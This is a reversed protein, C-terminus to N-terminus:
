PISQASGVADFRAGPPKRSCCTRLPDRRVARDNVYEAAAAEITSM